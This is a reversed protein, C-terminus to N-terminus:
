AMVAMSEALWSAFAEGGSSSSICNCILTAWRASWIEGFTLVVRSCSRPYQSSASRSNRGRGFYATTTAPALPGLPKTDIAIDDYYVDFAEPAAGWLRFGFALDTFAGVLGTKGGTIKSVFDTEFVLKGDVRVAAHDPQDNFEWELCFWRGTPVLGAAHYDENLPAKLQDVYTLQWRAHASAVELYKYRPFGATGANLLMLHRDPLKPTVFVYARGFQHHQLAEPIHTAHIFAWTRQSAAPCRVRLAYHGHAVKESQVELLNGGTVEQVWTAPSLSGSEFDESFLPAADAPSGVLATAALSAATLFSRIAPALNRMSSNM